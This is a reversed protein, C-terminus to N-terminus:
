VRMPMLVALFGENSESTFITPSGADTLSIKTEGAGVVGCIDALYKANFGIELPDADYDADIEDVASGSEPNNVALELKGTSFALRVAKGRESSVTSVRDSAVALTKSDVKAFINSETPIVRQYDPYTGDILKSTLVVSGHSVRIKNESIEFHVDDKKATAAIGIIEKVTKRPIIIAPMGDAGDPADMESRALRHGDTAVARLKQGDLSHMYIGNLYYRTEETPIAFECRSILRHLADGPISFSHSFEGTTISPYDEEPLTQLKFRSRGATLNAMNADKDFAFSVDGTIKKAIDRVLDSPITTVGQEEVTAATSISMELDLDTARLHLAGDAASIVINSLIPITNRREVVKGVAAIATAFEKAPINFKM